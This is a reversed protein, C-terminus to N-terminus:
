SSPRCHKCAQYPMTCILPHWREHQSRAMNLHPKAVIFSPKTIRQWKSFVPLKPRVKAPVYVGFSCTFASIGSLLVSFGRIGMNGCKPQVLHCRQSFPKFGVRQPWQLEIQMDPAARFGCTWAAERSCLQPPLVLSSPEM